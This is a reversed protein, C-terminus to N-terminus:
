NVARCAITTLNNAVDEKVDFEEGGDFSKEAKKNIISQPNNPWYYQSHLSPIGNIKAIDFGLLPNPQIQTKDARRWNRVALMLDTKLDLKYEDPVKKMEGLIAMLFLRDEDEEEQCNEASSPDAPEQRKVVQKIVQIFEAFIFQSKSNDDVQTENESSEDAEATQNKISKLTKKLKFGGYVITAVTPIVYHAFFRMFVFVKPPLKDKIIGTAASCFGM